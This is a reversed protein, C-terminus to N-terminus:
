KKRRLCNPSIRGSKRESKLTQRAWSFHWEWLCFRERKRSEWLGLCATGERSMRDGHTALIDCGNEARKEAPQWRRPQRTHLKRGALDGVPRSGKQGNQSQM